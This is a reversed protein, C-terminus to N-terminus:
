SCFEVPMTEWLRSLLHFEDSSVRRSDSATRMKHTILCKRYRGSGTSSRQISGHTFKVGRNMIGDYTALFIVTQTTTDSTDDSFMSAHIAWAKDPSPLLVQDISGCFASGSSLGLDKAIRTLASSDDDAM